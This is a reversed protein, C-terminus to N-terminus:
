GGETRGIDPITHNPIDFYPVTHYPVEKPETRAMDPREIFERDKRSELELAAMDRSVTAGICM